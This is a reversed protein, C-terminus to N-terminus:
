ERWFIPFIIPFRSWVVTIWPCSLILLISSVSSVNFLLRSIIILFNFGGVYANIYFFCFIFTDECRQLSDKIKKWMRNLNSTFQRHISTSLKQPSKEIHIVIKKNVCKDEYNDKEFIRTNDAEEWKNM